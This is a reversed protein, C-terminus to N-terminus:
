CLSMGATGAANAASNAVSGAANVAGTAANSVTNAASNAVSGAANVAGTAANSVTNAASGAVDSVANVTSGAVNSVTNTASAAAQKTADVVAAATAANAAKVAEVEQRAARFQILDWPAKSDLQLKAVFDDMDDKLEASVASGDHRVVVVRDPAFEPIKKAMQERRRPCADFGMHVKVGQASLDKYVSTQEFAALQDKVHALAAETQAKVEDKKFVGKFDKM